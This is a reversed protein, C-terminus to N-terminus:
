LDLSVTLEVSQSTFQPAELQSSTPVEISLVEGIFFNICNHATHQTAVATDRRVKRPTDFLILIKGRLQSLRISTHPYSM